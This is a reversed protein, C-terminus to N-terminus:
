SERTASSRWRQRSGSCRAPASASAPPSRTGEDAKSLAARIAKETTPATKPQGFTKGVDKARALGARVREQIMAREFEAFVGMQIRAADVGTAGAGGLVRFLEAEGKRGKCGRILERDAIPGPASAAAGTDTAVM